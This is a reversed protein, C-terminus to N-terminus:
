ITVNQDGNINKGDRSKVVTIELITIKNSINSNFTYKHKPVEKRLFRIFRKLIKYNRYSLNNRSEKKKKIRRNM